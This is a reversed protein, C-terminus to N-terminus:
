LLVLSRIPPHLIRFALPASDPQQFVCDTRWERAPPLGSFRSFVPNGSGRSHCCVPCFRDKLM